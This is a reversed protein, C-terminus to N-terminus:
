PSHRRRELRLGRADWGGPPGKRVSAAFTRISKRNPILMPTERAYDDYTAFMRRFLLRDQIMVGVIQLLIFLPAAALM